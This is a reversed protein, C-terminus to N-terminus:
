ATLTAPNSYSFSCNASHTLAQIGTMELTLGPIRNPVTSENVIATVARDSGLITTKPFTNGCWHSM